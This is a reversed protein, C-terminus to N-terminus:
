EAVWGGIMMFILSNRMSMRKQGIPLDRERGRLKGYRIRAARFGQTSSTKETGGRESRALEGSLVSVFVVKGCARESQCWWPKRIYWVNLAGVMEVFWQRAIV